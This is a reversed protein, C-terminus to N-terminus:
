PSILKDLFSADGSITNLNKIVKIHFTIYKKILEIKDVTCYVYIRIKFKFKHIEFKGKM